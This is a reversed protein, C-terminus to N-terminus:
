HDDHCNRVYCTITVCLNDSADPLITNYVTLQGGHKTLSTEREVLCRSVCLDMAAWPALFLLYILEGRYIFIVGDGGLSLFAVPPFLSLIFSGASPFGAFMVQALCLWQWLSVAAASAQVPDARSHVWWSDPVMPIGCLHLFVLDQHWRGLLTGSPNLTEATSRSKFNGQVLATWARCQDACFCELLPALPRQRLKECSETLSFFTQREKCRLGLAVMLHRWKVGVHQKRCIQPLCQKPCREAKLSHRLGSCWTECVGCLESDPAHIPWLRFTPFMTRHLSSRGSM